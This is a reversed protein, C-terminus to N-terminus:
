WEDQEKFRLVIVGTFNTGMVLVGFTYKNWVGCLEVCFIYSIHWKTNGDWKVIMTGTMNRHTLPTESIKDM